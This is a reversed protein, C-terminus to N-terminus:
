TSGYLSGGRRGSSQTACVATGFGTGIPLWSDEEGGAKSLFKIVTDEMAALIVSIIQVVIGATEGGPFDSQSPSTYFIYTRCVFGRM